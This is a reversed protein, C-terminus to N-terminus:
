RATPGDLVVRVARLLQEGSFPKELLVVGEALVGHQVIAGDTYGSMFLVRLGPRRAGLRKALEAGGLNPMVVDTLLLHIPESVATALALAQEGDGALLVTYGRGELRRRIMERLAPNDEVLLITESGGSIVASFAESPDGEPLQDVQPLYIKFTTGLGPESYLWIYGGSQKVIGYVTSLGLGTGQGAPKTTFFPEFVRRQTEADMGAGTDSVAVMVYRGPELPWHEAAYEERLEVNATELTLTGGEPMADRANVALNLLIQDIQGPDARVTGLDPAPRIVLAIDEGILRGLMMHANEVVSNLDLRKPQLIQKRSFAQLQRTLTAARQAAKVMEGVQERVPSGPALESEALEGYGLIVGLINNFDHAVGGALRGIAEIKQSQQLEAELLKRATLDIGTGICCPRGEVAFRLGTLFYPAQRGDKTVLEAEADAAGTIFVKRLSEEIRPRDEIAVFDLTQMSAVEAATYGFTKELARNWRLLRGSPDILYFIGPLSDLMAESFAKEALMAAEAQKRATINELFLMIGGIAGKPDRWPDMSWRLWQQSGDSQTWVDEDCALSEGALGRRHIEKWREPLDPNVQYHSIGVPTPRGRGYASIWRQSAALCIMDKDFMAIDAPAHEIFSRLQIESLRLAAENQKRESIDAIIAMLGSVRGDADTVPAVSFSAWFLEGSRKRVEIEYSETIGEARRRNREAMAAQDEERFLLGTANQGLLEAEPYGLMRCAQPNVFRIVEDRDVLLLGDAMNEILTRYKAESARLAEKARRAETVDQAMGRVVPVSVGETRLTTNYEWYRTEGTAIRIRMLGSARGTARIAKLYENFGARVEPALLDAMDIQLLAARSFGTLRVAAENVSLLHGELDHTCILDRSNEVLDRYRDESERVAAEARKRESIDRTVSLVSLVSGDDARLPVSQSEMWRESGKLGVIRFQLQGTEGCAVRQHLALYAARDEPHILECMQRGIVEAENEAEIMRLGAPNMELLRGDVAVTKVCEPEAEVIARFRSESTRLREEATSRASAGRITRSVGKGPPAASTDRRKTM